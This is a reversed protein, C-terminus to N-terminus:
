AAGAPSHPDATGAAGETRAGGPLLDSASPNATQANEAPSTMAASSPVRLPGAERRPEPFTAEHRQQAAIDNLLDSELECLVSTRSLLLERLSDSMPHGDKAEVISGFAGRVQRLASELHESGKM